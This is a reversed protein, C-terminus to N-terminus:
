LKRKVFFLRKLRNRLSAADLQSLVQNMGEHAILLDREKRALTSFLQSLRIEHRIVIDRAVQASNVISDIDRRPQNALLGGQISQIMEIESAMWGSEALLRHVIIENKLFFDREHDSYVAMPSACDSFEFGDLSLLSLKEVILKRYEDDVSLADIKIIFDAHKVGERLAVCWLMYFLIYSNDPSLPRVAFSAIKEKIGFGVENEFNLYKKLLLIETPVNESSIIVQNVSDFYEGVKYSWWQDWPNRLLYIHKGGLIRKLAGIRCATRCEQFVPRGRSGTILSHFYQAASNQNATWFYEEYISKEKILGRWSNWLEKLEEFYPKELNPHRLRGLMEKDEQENLAESSSKSYLAVEHLAEQFCYLNSNERFKNFLYTSGSRFLSHIFVPESTM